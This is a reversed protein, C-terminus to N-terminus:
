TQRQDLTYKKNPVLSWFKKRKFKVNFMDTELWLNNRSICQFKVCIVFNLTMIKNKNHLSFIQVRKDVPCCKMLGCCLKNPKGKTSPINKTQCWHGIKKRKVNVNFVDTELWLNNRSTCQFKVGIVFNLKKIKNKNQQSFDTTGPWKTLRVVNWWVM